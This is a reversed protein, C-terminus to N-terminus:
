RAELGPMRYPILMPVRRQYDRYAAGYRAVLDREELLTGVLIWLSFLGNLLLRDATLDPYSWIMLLTTLYIPHRVWRYPGRVVMPAPPSAAVSPRLVDQAGFMDAGKVSWTGWLSGAVAVFFIARMTVRLLGDASAVLVTSEQWLVVLALLVISSTFTYSLGLYREPLFRSLWRRISKRVMGSHQLFFSLCLLANLVLAWPTGLGLDVLHFPGAFLFIGFLLLSGVGTAVALSSLLYAAWRSIRSVKPVHEAM